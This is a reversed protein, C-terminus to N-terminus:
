NALRPGLFSGGLDDLLARTPDLDAPALPSPGEEDPEEGLWRGLTTIGERHALEWGKAGPKRSALVRVRISTEEASIPELPTELEGLLALGEQLSLLIGTQDGEPAAGTAYPEVITELIKGVKEVLKAEADDEPSPLQSEVLQVARLGDRAALREVLARLVGVVVNMGAKEFRKDPYPYTISGRLAGEEGAIELCVGSVRAQYM